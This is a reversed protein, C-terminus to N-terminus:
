NELVEMKVKFLCDNQPQILVLKKIDFAMFLLQFRVNFYCNSVKGIIKAWCAKYALLM